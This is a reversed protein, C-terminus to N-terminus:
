DWSWNRDKASEEEKDQVLCHMFLATTGFTISNGDFPYVFFFDGFGYQAENMSPRGPFAYALREADSLEERLYDLGEVRPAENKEVRVSLGNLMDPTRERDSSNVM